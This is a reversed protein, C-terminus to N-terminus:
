GLISYNVANHLQM